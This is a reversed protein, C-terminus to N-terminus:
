AKKRRSFGLGFLGLGLLALSAPEPVAANVSDLVFNDVSAISNSIGGSRVSVYSYASSATFTTSLQTWSDIAATYSNSSLISTGLSTASTSLGLDVSTASGALGTVWFSLQYQQGIVLPASLAMTFADYSGSVQTHATLFWTGDQANGFLGSGANFTLDTEQATGIGTVNNVTATLTANSMNFVTTTASNAEFSHNLLLNASASGWAALLIFIAFIKLFIPNKM